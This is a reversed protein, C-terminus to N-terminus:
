ENKGSRTVSSYKYQASQYMGSVNKEPHLQQVVDLLMLQKYEIDRIERKTNILETQLSEMNKTHTGSTTVFVYGVLSILVMLLTSIIASATKPLIIHHRSDVNVTM